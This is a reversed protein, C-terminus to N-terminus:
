GEKELRAWVALEGKSIRYLRRRCAHLRTFVLSIWTPPPRAELGDISTLLEKERAFAYAKTELASMATWPTRVMTCAPLCSAAGMMALSRCTADKQALLPPAARVDSEKDDLVRALM